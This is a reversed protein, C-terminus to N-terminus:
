NKNFFSMKYKGPSIRYKKKFLQIFNSFNSFGSMFCIDTMSHDSFEILHKSKELRKNNIWKKPANNFLKKFDSKFKSLSSGFDSAYEELTLPKDYNQEIYYKFDNSKGISISTLINKFRNNSDGSIINLLLEYLKYKIIDKVFHTKTDFYPIVSKINSNLIKSSPAIYYQTLSNERSPFLNLHKKIFDGIFNDSLSMILCEYKGNELEFIQHLVLNGSKIFCIQGKELTIKAGNITVNKKGALVIVIISSKLYVNVSNQKEFARYKMFTFEELEVKINKTYTGIFNLKNM